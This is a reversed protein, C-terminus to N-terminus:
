ATIALRWDFALTIANTKPIPPHIQRAFLRPVLVTAGPADLPGVGAGKTFLGAEQFTNGNGDGLGLSALFQLEGPVGTVKHADDMVFGFIPNVLDLDSRSPATNGTGMRMTYIGYNLMETRPPLGNPVGDPFDSVRQALLSVIVDAAAFMIKNRIEIKRLVKGAADAVVIRLDGRLHIGDRLQM